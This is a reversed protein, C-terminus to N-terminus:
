RPSRRLRAPPGPPRTAPDAYLTTPGAWWRTCPFVHLSVSGMLHPHENHVVVVDHTTAQPIQEVFTVDGHDTVRSRCRLRGLLDELQLRV